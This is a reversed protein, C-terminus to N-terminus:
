EKAWNEAEEVTSFFSFHEGKGISDKVIKNLSFRGTADEAPVLGQSVHKGRQEVLENFVENAYERSEVSTGRFKRADIVIKYIHHHMAADALEKMSNRFGEDNVYSNWTLKLYHGNLVISAFDTNYINELAQTNM